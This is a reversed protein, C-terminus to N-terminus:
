ILKKIKPSKINELYLKKTKLNFLFKKANIKKANLIHKINNEVLLRGAMFFPNDKHAFETTGDSKGNKTAVSSKIFVLKTLIKPLNKFLIIFGKNLM